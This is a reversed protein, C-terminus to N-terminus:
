DAVEPREVEHAARLARGVLIPGALEVLLSAAALPALTDLLALGRAHTEELVLIVVASMPAMAVGTLAGKRWSTGSLVALASSAAVKALLRAAVLASGLAFGARLQHWEVVVAIFVFLLVALMAGLAGFGRESPSLFVRRNRSVVGLALTAVVPSLGLARDLAVLLIVALAYALTSDQGTRRVAALVAPVLAGMLVGLLISGLLVWIVDRTADMVTADPGGPALGVTVKFALVALACNLASLHLIRETVQGSSRLENVVRVITAPSTAMALTATLRAELPALGGATAVWEVAAFTLIAELAATLAIWPNARFWRLNIRYGAEFLVLGLAVHALLLVQDDPAGRLLGVGPLSLVFGTIAYTSIRPIRLWRRAVEGLAWALVLTLPWAIGAAVVTWDTPM